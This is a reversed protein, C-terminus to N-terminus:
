HRTLTPTAVLSPVSPSTVARTARASAANYSSLRRPEWRSRRMALPSSLRPYIPTTRTGASRFSRRVHRVRGDSLADDKLGDHRNGRHDQEDRREGPIQGADVIGVVMQVADVVAQDLQMRELRAYVRLA